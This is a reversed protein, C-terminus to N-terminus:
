KKKLYKLTRIALNMAALYKQQAKELYERNEDTIVRDIMDIVVYTAEEIELDEKKRFSQM